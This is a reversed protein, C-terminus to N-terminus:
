NQKEARLKVEFAARNLIEIVEAPTQYTATVNITGNADIELLIQHEINMAKTKVFTDFNRSRPACKNGSIM